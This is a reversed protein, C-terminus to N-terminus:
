LWSIGAAARRWIGGGYGVATLVLQVNSPNGQTLVFPAQPTDYITRGNSTITARVRYRDGASIYGPDYNLVFPIRGGNFAAPRFSIQGNRVVFYPRDVNELQVTAIANPPLQGSNVFLTGSLGGQPSTQPDNLRMRIPRLQLSRSDQVVLSVRGRADARRNIEETVDFVQNGVRGVQAGGVCVITDGVNIGNQAAISNPIVQRVIVGTDSNTGTAGLPWNRNGPPVNFWNNNDWTRDLNFGTAYPDASGSWNEQAATFPLRCLLVCVPLLCLSADRAIWRFYNM